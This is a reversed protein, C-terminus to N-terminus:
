NMFLSGSYMHTIKGDRESIVAEGQAGIGKFEGIATQNGSEIRVAHGLHYCMTPWLELVGVSPIRNSTIYDYIKKPVEKKDSEDIETHIISDVPTKYTGSGSDNIIGLNLGIGVVLLNENIMTTIIGGCKNGDNTLLDNPWKLKLSVGYHEELFLVLQTGIELPTLTATSNPSLTFSFALANSFHDWHNGTRGVGDQQNATSVLISEGDSPKINEILYSQTSACSPLHIHQM